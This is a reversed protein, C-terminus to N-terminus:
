WSVKFPLHGESQETPLLISDNENTPPQKGFSTNVDPNGQWDTTDSQRDDTPTLAVNDPLSKARTYMNDQGAGAFPTKVWEVNGGAYLVNQGDRGHNNSNGQRLDGSNSNTTLATLAPVGSNGPNLDAAMPLTPKMRKGYLYGAQSAPPILGATYGSGGNPNGGNGDLYSGIYSEGPYPMTFSYSLNNRSTFNSRNAPQNNNVDTPIYKDPFYGSASPCVFQKSNMFNTRILVFLAATVDNPLPTNNNGGTNYGTAGSGSYPNNGWANTFATTVVGQGQIPKRAVDTGAGLVGGPAIDYITRPYMGMNESYNRVAVGLAHLNAGCYARRGSERAKMVTPILIVILVVVIAIVVLLEVLSFARRNGRSDNMNPKGNEVYASLMFM